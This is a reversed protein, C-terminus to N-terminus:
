GGSLVLVLPLSNHFTKQKTQADPNLIKSFPEDTDRNQPNKAGRYYIQPEANFIHDEVHGNFSHSTDLEDPAQGNQPFGYALM